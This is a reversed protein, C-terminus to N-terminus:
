DSEKVLVPVKGKMDIVMPKYMPDAYSSDLTNVCSGTKPYNIGCNPHSGCSKKGNCRFVITAGENILTVSM